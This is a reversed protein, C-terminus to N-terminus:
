ISLLILNNRPEKVMMINLGTSLMQGNSFVQFLRKGNEKSLAVKAKDMLCHRLSRVNVEDINLCIYNTSCENEKFIGKIRM